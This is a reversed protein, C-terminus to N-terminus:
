FVRLLVVHENLRGNLKTETTRIEDYIKQIKTRPLKDAGKLKEPKRVTKQTSKDTDYGVISTGKVTLSQTVSDAIYVGLKRNKTNYVWLTTAGIVGIPNLSAVGIAPESDKYKLRATLKEKSPRKKSKPRRAAKETNILADCATMLKEYFELFDKRMKASMYSYAEKIQEDKFALVAQAEQYEAKYTDKIIKAHAAKIVGSNVMTTYPDFQKLDLNGQTLSDVASDFQLFIDSIQERMRQQISVAVAKVPKESRAAVASKEEDLKKVKEMLIKYHKEIAALHEQTLGVGKALMYTYKGISMFHWNPLKALMSSKKKDFTKEAYKIFSEALLKEAVEYHVFSKAEWFLRDYDKHLGNVYIPEMGPQIVRWNPIGAGTSTVSKTKAVM